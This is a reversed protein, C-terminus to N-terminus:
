IKLVRPLSRTEEQAERAEHEKAKAVEEAAMLEEDVEEDGKRGRLAFERGIAFRWGSDVKRQEGRRRGVAVKKPQM